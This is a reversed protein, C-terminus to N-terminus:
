PLRVPYGAFRSKVVYTNAVMDGVRRHGRSFMAVWLGIPLIVNIGDVIWLLNRVFARGIGPRSGDPKVVRAGTVFMGVSAGTLGQLLVENIIGWGLAVGAAVWVADRDVLIIEDGPQPTGRDADYCLRGSPAPDPCREAKQTDIDAMALFVLGVILGGVIADIIYAFIRRWIAKTPDEAAMHSGYAPDQTSTDV